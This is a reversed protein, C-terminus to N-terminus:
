DASPYRGTETDHEATKWCVELRQLANTAARYRCSARAVLARAWCQAQSLTEACTVVTSVLRLAEAEDPPRGTDCARQHLEDAIDYRAQQCLRTTDM